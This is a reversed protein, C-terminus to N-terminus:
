ISEVTYITGDYSAIKVQDGTGFESDSTADVTRLAGNVSVQIKGLTGPLIRQYVTATQGVAGSYNVKPTEQLRAMFYFLSSQVVAIILGALCGWFIAMGPSSGNELAAIGFWGLGVFFGVLNRVSFLQFTAGSSGDAEMDGDFDADLGDTADAGFITALTMLGLIVSSPIALYYFTKMLGGMGEMFPFIELIMNLITM